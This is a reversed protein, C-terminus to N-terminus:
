VLPLSSLANGANLMWVSYTTVVVMSCVMAADTILEVASGENFLNKMQFRRIRKQETM